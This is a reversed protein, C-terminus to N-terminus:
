SSPTGNAFYDAIQPLIILAGTLLNVGAVLGAAQWGSIRLAHRALFWNLWLGYAFTAGLAALEAVDGSLGGAMLVTMLMLMGVLVVPAAWQCWCFAAAFRPWEAARGLWRAGEFSLVLPALLGVSIAAVNTLSSLGGGAVGLLAGVILFAAIPALAALVADRSGGFQGMGEARGRVVLLIGRLVNRPPDARRPGPVMM